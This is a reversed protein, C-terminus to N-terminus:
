AMSPGSQGTRLPMSAWVPSDRMSEGNNSETRVAARMVSVSGAIMAALEWMRAMPRRPGFSARQGGVCVLGSGAAWSAMIYTWRVRRSSSAVTVAHARIGHEVLGTRRRDFSLKKSDLRSRHQWLQCSLTAANAM